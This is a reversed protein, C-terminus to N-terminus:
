ACPSRPTRPKTSPPRSSPPPTRPRSTRPTPTSSRSRALGRGDARLRDHEPPPRRRLQGHRIRRRGPRRRAHRRHLDETGERGARGRRQHPQLQVDPHACLAHRRQAVHAHLRVRARLAADRLPPRPAGDHAGHHEAHRRRLREHRHPPPDRRAVRHLLVM